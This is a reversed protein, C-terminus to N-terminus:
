NSSYDIEKETDLDRIEYDLLEEDTFGLRKFVELTESYSNVVEMIYGICSYLLEEQRDKYM